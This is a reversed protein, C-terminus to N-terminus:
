SRHRSSLISVPGLESLPMSPARNSLGDDMVQFGRTTIVVAFYTGTPVRGGAPVSAAYATFKGRMVILYVPQTLRNYVKDGPTAVRLAKAHTTMVAKVWIPHPDGVAKAVRSAFTQLKPIASQPIPSRSTASASLILGTSLGACALSGAAVRTVIRRRASIRRWNAIM